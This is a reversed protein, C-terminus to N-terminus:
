GVMDRLLLLTITQVKQTAPEYKQVPINRHHESRIGSRRNLGIDDTPLLSYYAKGGAPGEMGTRYTITNKDDDFLQARGSIGRRTKNESSFTKGKRRKTAGACSGSFAQGRAQGSPAVRNESLIM